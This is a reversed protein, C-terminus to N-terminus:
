SAIVCILAVIITLKVSGILSSGPSIIRLGYAVPKDKPLIRTKRKIRKLSYATLDFGDLHLTMEMMACTDEDDDLSPIHPIMAKCEDTNCHIFLNTLRLNVLGLRCGAQQKSLNVEIPWIKASDLRASFTTAYQSARIKTTGIRNLQGM